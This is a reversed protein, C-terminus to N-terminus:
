PINEGQTSPAVARSPISDKKVVWATAVFTDREIQIGDDYVGIFYICNNNEVRLKSVTCWRNDRLIAHQMVVSSENQRDSFGALVRMGDCIEDGYLLDETAPNMMTYKDVINDYVVGDITISTIGNNNFM